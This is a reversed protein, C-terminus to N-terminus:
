CPTSQRIKKHPKQIKINFMYRLHALQVVTTYNPIVSPSSTGKKSTYDHEQTQIVSNNETNQTINIPKMIEDSQESFTLDTGEHSVEPPFDGPSTISM